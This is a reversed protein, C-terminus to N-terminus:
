LLKRFHWCTGWRVAPCASGHKHVGRWCVSTGSAPVSNIFSHRRRIVKGAGGVASEAVGNAVNLQVGIIGTGGIRGILWCVELLKLIMIHIQKPLQMLGIGSRRKKVLIAPQDEMVGMGIVM